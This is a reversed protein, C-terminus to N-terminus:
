VVRSDTHELQPVSLYLAEPRVEVRPRELLPRRPPGLLAVGLRTPPCVFETDRMSERPRTTAGNPRDHQSPASVRFGSRCLSTFRSARSAACARLPIAHSRRGSGDRVRGVDSVASAVKADHM